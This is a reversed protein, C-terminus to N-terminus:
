TTPRSSSSIAPRPTAKPTARGPLLRAIRYYGSNPSRARQRRRGNVFLQRFYWNGAKVEPITAEWLAGNRHFGSVVRGGSLLPKENEYAEIVVPAQASGSDAPEIVLPADLFYTGARVRLTVPGLQGAHRARRIADHAATLSRLPGDTGEANAAAARGSWHDNGDAALYLVMEGAPRKEAANLPAAAALSIMTLLKATSRLM